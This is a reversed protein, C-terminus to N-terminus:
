DLMAFCVYAMITTLVSFAVMGVIFGTWFDSM